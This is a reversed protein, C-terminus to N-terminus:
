IRQKNVELVIVFRRIASVTGEFRFVFVSGFVLVNRASAFLSSTKMANRIQSIYLRPADVEVGFFLLNDRCDFYLCHCSKTILLLSEVLAVNEM